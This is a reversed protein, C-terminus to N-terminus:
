WEANSCIPWDSPFFQPEQSIALQDTKQRYEAAETKKGLMEALRAMAKYERLQFTCLDAAPGRRLYIHLRQPPPNNKIDEDRIGIIVQAIVTKEILAAM